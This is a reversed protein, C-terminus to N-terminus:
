KKLHQHTRLVTELLSLGEQFDTGKYFVGSINYKMAKNTQPDDIYASIIIIPIKKDFARIQKIAEIGDMVPMRLDMFVVDTGKEKVIKIAEEGNAANLAVYGKSELWMSMLQRFDAEDDCILVKIKKEEM